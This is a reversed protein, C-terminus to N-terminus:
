GKYEIMGAHRIKARLDSKLNQTVGGDKEMIPTELVSKLGKGVALLRRFSADDGSLNNLADDFFPVLKELTRTMEKANAQLGQLIARMGGIEAIKKDVESKYAWSKTLAEEAKTAMMFGTIAIAPGAVIGGLVYMGGAMGLGGASLAGGGLWALTANTAAAGSLSAIATGTSASALLGVSGYAGLGALVGSATGSLLGTEIELSNLVMKKLNPLNLEEISEEYDELKSGSNKRKKIEDVLRKIQQTFIKVKLSGLDEFASNTIRREEDLSTICDKHRREADKGISKARDLDEKADLGKKVGYGGAVLSVLGIVVPILPLPM